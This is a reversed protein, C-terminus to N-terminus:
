VMRPAGRIGTGLSGTLALITFGLQYVEKRNTEIHLEDKFPMICEFLLKVEFNHVHGKVSSWGLRGYIMIQYTQGTNASRTQQNDEFM